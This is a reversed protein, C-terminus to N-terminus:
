LKSSVNYRTELKEITYEAMSIAHHTSLALWIEAEMNLFEHWSEQQDHLFFHSLDKSM